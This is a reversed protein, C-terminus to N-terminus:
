TRSRPRAGAAIIEAGILFELSVDQGAEVRKLLDRQWTQFHDVWAQLTYVYRGLELVQFEGRWRDNFLPYMPLTQWDPDQQRRCLLQAAIMEHGDAVIDAEVRVHEGVSRKAPFRGGDIEPRVGEIVM